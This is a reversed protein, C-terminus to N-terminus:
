CRTRSRVRRLAARREVRANARELSILRAAREVIFSSSEQFDAYVQDPMTPLVSLGSIHIPDDRLSRRWNGVSARRLAPKSNRATWRPSSGVSKLGIGM